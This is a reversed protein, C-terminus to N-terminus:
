IIRERKLPRRCVIGDQAVWTESDVEKFKPSDVWKPIPRRAEYWFRNTDGIPENGMGKRWRKENGAVHLARHHTACLSIVREDGLKLGPARTQTFRPHHTQTSAVQAQIEWISWLKM